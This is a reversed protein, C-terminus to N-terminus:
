QTVAHSHEGDTRTSIGSVPAASAEDPRGTAYTLDQSRQAVGLNQSDGDPAHALVARLGHPTPFVRPFTYPALEYQVTKVV